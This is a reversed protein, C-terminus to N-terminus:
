KREASKVCNENWQIWREVYVTKVKYSNRGLKKYAVRLYKYSALFGDTQNFKSGKVIAEAVQQKSVGLWLMKETAHKTIFLSIEAM